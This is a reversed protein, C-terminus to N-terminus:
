MNANYYRTDGTVEEGIFDPKSFTQQESELELEAITLGQLRGHFEDVEWVLQTSDCPQTTPILWRTKEIVGPLCMELLQMADAVDIEKEWEFRSFGWQNPKSKVTLFATSAGNSPTKVRVRVTRDPDKSIYGQQITYHNTALQKYSENRVLFKREIEIYEQM